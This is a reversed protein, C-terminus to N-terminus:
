CLKKNLEAMAEELLEKSIPMSHNSAGAKEAFSVGKGKTTHLIVMTPKTSTKALTVTKDIENCSHGNEVILVNWGFAEWKKDLPAIDCIDSIKGDLQFKNYDTFAIVNDLKHQAAFM